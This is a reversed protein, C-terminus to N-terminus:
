KSIFMKGIPPDISASAHSSHPVFWDNEDEHLYRGPALFEKSMATSSKFSCTCRAYQVVDQYGIFYRLCRYGIPGLNEITIDQAEVFYAITTEGLVCIETVHYSHMVPLYLSVEDFELIVVVDPYVVPPICLPADGATL